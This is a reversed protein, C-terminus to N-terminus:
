PCDKSSRENKRDKSAMFTGGQISIDRGRACAPPAGVEKQCVTSVAKVPRVRKNTATICKQPLRTARKFHWLGRIARNVGQVLSRACLSRCGGKTRRSVEPAEAVERHVGGVRDGAAPMRGCQRGAAVTRAATVGKLGVAAVYNSRRCGGSDCYDWWCCQLAACVQHAAQWGTLLVGRTCACAHLSCFRWIM